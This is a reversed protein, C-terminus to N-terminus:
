QKVLQKVIPSGDVIVQVHYVGSPYSSMNIKEENFDIEVTNLLNGEANFLNLVSLSNDSVGNLKVYLDNVVPNPYARLEVTENEEENIDEEGAARGNGAETFGCGTTTFTSIASAESEIGSACVSVVYWEYTTCSQLGFLIALPYFTSTTTWEADGAKRYFVNVSAGPIIDWVLLASNEVVNNTYLGPIVACSEEECGETTFNAVPSFDTEVGGCVSKVKLEYDTCSNLNGLISFPLSVTTETWNLDEVAKYAIVYEDADASWILTCGNTSVNSVDIVGVEECEFDAEVPMELSFNITQSVAQAGSNDTAVAYLTYNGEVSVDLTTNFPAQNIQDLLQGNLYYQVDTVYGDLDYVILSTNFSTAATFVQGDYPSSIAVSPPNNVQFNYEIFLEAAKTPDSDHADAVREGNGEILFAFPSASTYGDRNVIEQVISSLDPTTQEPGTANVTTWPSPQWNVSNSTKTRSSINFDIDGFTEPSDSAEGYIELSTNDSNTEDCSFVIYANVINAGAPVNLGTFRLGVKQNGIGLYNDYVLELDYNTTNTQGSPGEEADDSDSNIRASVTAGNQDMVQVNISAIESMINGNDYAVATINYIGYEMPEFGFSSYPATYDVDLLNQDLYFEVRNITGDTDFADATIEVSQYPFLTANDEPSTIAVSPAGAVSKSMVVVDGTSPNWVDIGAPLVFRNDGTLFDVSAANDTKITRIEITDNSVWMLKFQNFAGSARTWPKNDDNGRLPAGWCGEGVYVTGNVDDRRFGEFCDLGGNCPVLPYTTKVTHADGEVVVNVEHTEFLGAWFAYQNNGESKLAVHPRMPRHYQASKWIFDASNQLEAELWDTQTGSISIESNLTFVKMLDGGMTVTYYNLSPINFLSALMGNNGEHNGRAPIIPTMRGDPSVTLQWDELWENWQQENGSDTMDGDFLVADPRLKAVLLNGNRREVRNNRSDGGSILSLPEDNTAPTTEFFLGSLSEENDEILIYYRTDPTLNELHFFRNEITLFTNSDTVSSSFAYAAANDGHDTTDFYITANAGSPQCIGITSSVSADGMFVVRPKEISASLDLSGILSICLFLLFFYCRTM